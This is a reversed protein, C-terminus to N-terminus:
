TGTAIYMVTWALECGPAYSESHFPTLTSAIEFRGPLWEWPLCNDPLNRPAPLPLAPDDEHVHHACSVLSHPLVCLLQTNMMVGNGMLGGLRTPGGSPSAFVESTGDTNAAHERLQPAPPPYWGRWQGWAVLGSMRECTLSEAVCQKWRSLLRVAFYPVVLARM